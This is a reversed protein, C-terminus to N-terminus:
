AKIRQEDQAQVARDLPLLLKRDNLVEIQGFAGNFKSHDGYFAAPLRL